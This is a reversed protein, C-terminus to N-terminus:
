MKFNPPYIILIVILIGSLIVPGFLMTNGAGNAIPNETEYYVISHINSVPIQINKYEFNYSFKKTLECLGYITDKKFLFGHRFVAISTDALFVKAAPSEIFQYEYLGRASIDKPKSETIRYGPACSTFLLSNSIILVWIIIKKLPYSM